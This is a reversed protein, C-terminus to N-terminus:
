EGGQHLDPDGSPPQDGLREPPPPQVPDRADGDHDASAEGQHRRYPQTRPGPDDGRLLGGISQPRYAPRRLGLSGDRAMGSLGGYRPEVPSPQVGALDDASGARPGSRLGTTESQHGYTRLTRDRALPKNDARDIGRTKAMTSFLGTRSIKADRSDLVTKLFALACDEVAYPCDDSGFPNIMSCHQKRWLRIYAGFDAKPDDEYIRPFVQEKTFDEFFICPYKSM